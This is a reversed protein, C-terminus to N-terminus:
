VSVKIDRGGRTRHSEQNNVEDLKDATEDGSKKAIDEDGLEAAVGDDEM